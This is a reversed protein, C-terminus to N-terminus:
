VGPVPKVLQENVAAVIVGGLQTVWDEYDQGRLVYAAENRTGELEVGNVEAWEWYRVTITGVEAEPYVSIGQRCRAFGTNADTEFVQKEFPNTHAM